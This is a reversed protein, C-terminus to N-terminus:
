DTHTLERYVAAVCLESAPVGDLEAPDRAPLLDHADAFEPHARAADLKNKMRSRARVADDPQAIMEEYADRQTRLVWYDRLATLRTVWELATIESATEIRVSFGSNNVIEFSRARKSGPELDDVLDQYEPMTDQPRRHLHPRHVHTSGLTGSIREVRSRHHQEVEDPSCLRVEKIDKLRLYGRASGILEYMREKESQDYREEIQEPGASNDSTPDHAAVVADHKAKVLRLRRLLGAIGMSQGDKKREVSYPAGHTGSTPLSGMGAVVAALLNNSGAEFPPDPAHAKSANIIFLNGDHSSLYVRDRRTKGAGHVRTM